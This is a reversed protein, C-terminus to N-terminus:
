VSTQVEDSNTIIKPVEPMTFNNDVYTELFFPIDDELLKFKYYTELKRYQIEKKHKPTEIEFPTYQETVSDLLLSLIKSEPDYVGDLIKTTNLVPFVGWTNVRQGSPTEIVVHYKM